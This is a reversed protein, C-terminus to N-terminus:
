TCPSGRKSVDARARRNARQKCASSCSRRRSPAGREDVAPLEIGCGPCVMPQRVALVKARHYARQAAALYLRSRSPRCAKSCVEARRGPGWTRVFPDGCTPCTALALTRDFAARKAASRKASARRNHVRWAALMRDWQEGGAAKVRRYWRAVGLRKCLAAFERQERRHAWEAIAHAKGIAFGHALDDHDIALKM